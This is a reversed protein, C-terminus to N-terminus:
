EKWQVIRVSRPFRKETPFTPFLPIRESQVSQVRPCSCCEGRDGTSFGALVAVGKYLQQAEKQIIGDARMLWGSMQKVFALSIGPFDKLVRDFQEKSLVMLRTEELAEVNVLRPERDVVGDRWFEGREWYPSNPRSDM